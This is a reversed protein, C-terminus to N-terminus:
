PDSRPECQDATYAPAGAKLLTAHFPQEPALFHHHCDVISAPTSM